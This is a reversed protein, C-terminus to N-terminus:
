VEFRRDYKYFPSGELNYQRANSWILGLDERFDALTDYEDDEFKEKVKSLDMPHTIVMYYNPADRIDVPHLFPWVHKHKMLGDLFAKVKEPEPIRLTRLSSALKENFSKTVARRVRGTTSDGGSEGAPKSEM